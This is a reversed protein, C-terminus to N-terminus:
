THARGARIPRVRLVTALEQVGLVGACIVVPLVPVLFRIYFDNTVVPGVLLALAISSLLLMERWPTRSRLPAWVSGLVGGAVGFFLLIGVLPRVTHIHRPIWLLWSRPGPLATEADNVGQNGRVYHLLDDFVTKAYTRPHEQIIGFAFRRLLSNSRATMGDPYDKTFDRKSGPAFLQRAPSREEWVGGPGLKVTNCLPRTEPPVTTDADCDAFAEIRGYLFWGDSQTITFGQGAMAHFSCYLLLPVILGVVGAVVARWSRRAVLVWLLWAPVAFMGASRLTVMVAIGLGGLAVAWPRDPAVILVYVGLFLALAFFAETLIQHELAVVYGDILFLGAGAAALGRSVRLHVLAGYMMVGVALGGLHQLVTVAGYSRGFVAAVARLILPYGSPRTPSFDIGAHDFALHIYVHSDPFLNIPYAHSVAWRLFAGFGLVVILVWHRRILRWHASRQSQGLKGSPEPETTTDTDGDVHVQTM